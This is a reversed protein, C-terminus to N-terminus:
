ANRLLGVAYPCSVRARLIRPRPCSHPTRLASNPTRVPLSLPSRRPTPTKPSRRASAGGRRTFKPERSLTPPLPRAPALAFGAITFRWSGLTGSLAGDAHTSWPVMRLKPNIAVILAIETDSMSALDEPTLAAQAERGRFDAHSHFEGLYEHKPFRAILSQIVKNQREFLCVESFRREATQYALAGEVIVKGPLAYGFLLGYSERRYVEAAAFVIALFAQESIYIERNM